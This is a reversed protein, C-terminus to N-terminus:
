QRRRGGDVLVVRDLPIPDLGVRPTAHKRQYAVTRLLGFTLVWRGILIGAVVITTTTVLATPETPWWVHGDATTAYVLLLLGMAISLAVSSWGLNTDGEGFCNCRVTLGSTLAYGSAAVFSALLGAALLTGFYPVWGGGLIMATLLELASVVFAVARLSQAPLGLSRLTLRFSERARLKQVAAFAFILALMMRAIYGAVM